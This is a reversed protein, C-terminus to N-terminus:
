RCVSDRAVPRNPGGIRNFLVRTGEREWAYWGGGKAFFFLEPAGPGGAPDHPSYELVLVDRVGLDGGADRAPEIWARQDYRAPGSKLPNVHCQSDFWTISTAVDLQWRGEIRRPLWRGDDFSYSEGTDGDIAHDVVHYVFSDDWRWCEFRRPNAYKVWCVERRNWDVVQNQSQSGVRPWTSADGLLYDLVDAPAAPSPAAPAACATTVIAGALAVRRM